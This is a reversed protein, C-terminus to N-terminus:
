VGVLVDLQGELASLVTWFTKAGNWAMWSESELTDNKLSLLAGNKPQMGLRVISGILKLANTSWASQTSTGGCIVFNMGPCSARRCTSLPSAFTVYTQTLKSNLTAILQLKTVLLRLKATDASVLVALGVVLACNPATVSTSGAVIGPAPADLQYQFPM